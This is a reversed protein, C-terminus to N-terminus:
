LRRVKGDAVASIQGPQAPEISQGNSCRSARRPGAARALPRRDAGVYGAVSAGAAVRHGLEQELRQLDLDISRDQLRHRLGHAEYLANVITVANGKAARVRRRLQRDVQTRLKQAAHLATM